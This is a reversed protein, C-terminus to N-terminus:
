FEATTGAEPESGTDMREPCDAASIDCFRSEQPSPVRKPPTAAAIRRITSGLNDIFQGPLAGRPVRRRPRPVRGRRRAQRLQLPHLSQASGVPLDHSPRHPVATGRRIERRHHARRQGQQRYHRAPRRPHRHPRAAPLQEPTRRPGRLRQSGMSSEARQAPRHPQAVVPVPRLRFTAQDLEPPPGQVLHGVRLLERRHAPPAALYAWIYPFDRPTSTTASM